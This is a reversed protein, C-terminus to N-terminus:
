KDQKNKEETTKDDRTNQKKKLCFVAYSRRMLSQLESTHEESRAWQFTYLNGRLIGRVAFALPLAKLFLWSGGPRLPALFTEWAVCLAILALLSVVALRRLHPNLEPNM